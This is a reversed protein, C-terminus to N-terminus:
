EIIIESDDVRISASIADFIPEYHDREHDTVQAMVFLTKGGAEIASMFVCNILEISVFELHRAEADTGNLMAQAPYEDIDEYEDQFAAVAENLVHDVPPRRHLITLSWFNGAESVTITRADSQTEEVLEWTDPYQFVIGQQHYTANLNM